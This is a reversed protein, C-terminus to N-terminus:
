GAAEEMLNGGLALREIGVRAIGGTRHRHMWDARCVQLRDPDTSNPWYRWGQKGPDETGCDACTPKAQERTSCVTCREGPLVARGCKPNPCYAIKRKPNASTLGDDVTKALKALQHLAVILRLAEPAGLPTSAIPADDSRALGIAHEVPSSPSSSSGAGGTSSPWSTPDAWAVLNAEVANAHDADLQDAIARLRTATTARLDAGLPRPRSWHTM